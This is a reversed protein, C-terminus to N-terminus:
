TTLYDRPHKTHGLIYISDDSYNLSMTILDGKGNIRHRCQGPLSLGRVVSFFFSAIVSFFHEKDTGTGTDFAQM